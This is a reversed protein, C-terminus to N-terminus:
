TLFRCGAHVINLRNRNAMFYLTALTEGVYGIYRDNRDIGKPISQDEVRELIPFLWECYDALVSKRALMINYNYLYKQQLVSTFLDIYDPHVESIAKLVADWDEKKLYRKHHVEINPEYPMPYPLVADVDNDALRM